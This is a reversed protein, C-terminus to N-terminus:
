GLDVENERLIEFFRDKISNLEDRKDQSADVHKYKKRLYESLQILCSKYKWGNQSTEFEETDEPLSFELIGRM